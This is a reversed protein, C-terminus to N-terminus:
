GKLLELLDNAIVDAADRRALAAARRGMERRTEAQGLLDALAAALGEPTLDKEEMVRAAGADQFARANVYQHNGSAYPYPVLIAPLGWLAIESLSGSGARSVMVDADRYAAAMDHIFPVLEVAAPCLRTRAWDYNREGTQVVARFAAGRAALRHFAELSIEVLRRAGQSGGTVLVGPVAKTSGSVARDREEILERRLPFGTVQCPLTKWFDRTAPYTVYVRGCWRAMIRNVAGPRVNQEHLTLKWGRWRGALLAPASVYGGVGFIVGPRLPKMWRGCQWAAAAARWLARANTWTLRRRMGEVRFGHFPIGRKEVEERDRPAEKGLYALRVDPDAARLAEAVALAPYLHGGTGGGTLIITGTRGEETTRSANM